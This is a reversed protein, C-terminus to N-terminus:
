RARMVAFGLAGNTTANGTGAVTYTVVGLSSVVASNVSVGGSTHSTWGALISPLVFDSTRAGGVAVTGGTGASAKTGYGVCVYSAPTGGYNNLDVDVYGGAATGAAVATGLFFDGAALSASTHLIASNESVDWYVKIGQGITIGTYIPVRVRGKFKYWCDANADAAELAVVAGLGTISLVEGASVASTYAYKVQENDKHDLVENAESRSM